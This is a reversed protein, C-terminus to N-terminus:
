KGPKLSLERRETGMQVIVSGASVNIELCRIRVRRSGSIVDNEEGAAFTQNNIIALPRERTGSIGKLALEAVLSPQNTKVATGTGSGAFLRSTRPYFPDRGESPSTPIVFVSKPIEPEVPAAAAPAPSGTSTKATANTSAMGAHAVFSLCLLGTSFPRATRWFLQVRLKM